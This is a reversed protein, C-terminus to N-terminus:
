FRRYLRCVIEGTPNTKFTSMSGDYESVFRDRCNYIATPQEIGDISTTAQYQWYNKASRKISLICIQRDEVRRCFEASAPAISLLWIIAIAQIIKRLKV